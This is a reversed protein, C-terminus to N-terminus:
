AASAPRTYTCIAGSSIDADAAPAGVRVARGVDFILHWAPGVAAHRTDQLVSWCSTNAPTSSVPAHDGPDAHSSGVPWIPRFLM